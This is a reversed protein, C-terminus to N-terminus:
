IGAVGPSEEGGRCRRLDRVSKRWLDAPEPCGQLSGDALAAGVEAAPRWPSAEARRRRGIGAQTLLLEAGEKKQKLQQASQDIGLGPRREGSLRVM